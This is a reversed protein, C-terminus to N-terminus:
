NELPLGQNTDRTGKGKAVLLGIIILAIGVALSVIPLFDLRQAIVNAFGVAMMLLGIFFVFTGFYFALSRALTEGASM